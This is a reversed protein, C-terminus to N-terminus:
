VPLFVDPPLDRLIMQISQEPTNQTWNVRQCGGLMMRIGPSLMLDELFIPFTPLHQEQAEIIEKRVFESAIANSSLMPMFICCGDIREAIYEFYNIGTPITRVDCWLRVGQQQLM